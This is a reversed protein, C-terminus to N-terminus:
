LVRAHTLMMIGCAVQTCDGCSCSAAVKRCKWRHHINPGGMTDEYKTPQTPSSHPVLHPVVMHICAAVSADCAM